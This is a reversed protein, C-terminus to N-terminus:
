VPAFVLVRLCIATFVTTPRDGLWLVEINVPCGVVEELNTHAAGPEGIEPFAHKCCAISCQVVIDDIYADSTMRWRLICTTRVHKYLLLYIFAIRGGGWFLVFRFKALNM